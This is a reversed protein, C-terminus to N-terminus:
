SGIVMCNGLNTCNAPSVPGASSANKCHGLVAEEPRLSIVSLKPSQYAKKSEPDKHEDTM